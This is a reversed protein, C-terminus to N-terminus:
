YLTTIETGPYYTALIKRYGQGAQARGIAGMQCMGVGHGWGRGVAVLGRVRGDRRDEELRFLTSELIGGSTPRLIWRISDGRVRFTERNTEIRLTAARGSPTRGEVAVDRIVAVDGPAAGLADALTQRLVRALAPGSWEERWHFHKSIDCYYGGGPRADSVSQLYPAPPKSWVRDVAATRGGCTSHYYAMIPAGGYTVIQGRTDRVARSAMSDEAAAGGYVQDQTSGYVDFGRSSQSELNAIAYTRAAVAQAKLAELAISPMEKPVVGLLYDELAVINVATIRGPAGSLLTVDGRYSRGDVQLTGGRPRLRMPGGAPGIRGGSGAGTIRGAGDASFRWDGQAASLLVGSSDRIEFSTGGVTISDEAVAVGVRVDPARSPVAPSAASGPREARPGAPTCSLVAILAALQLPLALPLPDRRSHSM